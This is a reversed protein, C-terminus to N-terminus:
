PIVKTIKYIVLAVVLLFVLTLVLITTKNLTVGFVEGEAKKSTLFKFKKLM